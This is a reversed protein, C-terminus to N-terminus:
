VVATSSAGKVEIVHGFTHFIMVKEFVDSSVHLDDIRIEQDQAADIGDIVVLLWHADCQEYKEAKSEKERVIVELDDKSTLGVTHVQMIRWKANAYEKANLYISEVEPMIDRFLYKDIEGSTRKDLSHALAALDASLKKKRTASIPNANDFSFTLEISKGGGTKYLRHSEAIVADRLLRQRQESEPLKGSQLFFCTIEIGIKRTGHVIVDPKDGYKVSGDPLPWVKRFQEFYHRQIEDNSPKAM